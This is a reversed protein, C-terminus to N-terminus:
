QFYVGVFQNPYSSSGSVGIQNLGRSNLSVSVDLAFLGPVFGPLAYILQSQIQSAPEFTLISGAPVISSSGAVVGDMEPPSTLGVGTLFLTVTTGFAAPNNPGNLTGDSNRANALGTGSGDATLLGPATAVVSENLINSLAGNVSVQINTSSQGAIEVPAICVVRGFDVTILFAPRGDFLVQVGELNTTMPTLVNLGIDAFKVPVFRPLSLSVIEGPAVPGPQLSFANSVRALNLGPVVSPQVFIALYADTAMLPFPNTFGRIQPTQAGMGVDGALVISGGLGAAVSPTAGALLYTSFALASGTANLVSVFSSFQGVAPAPEVGYVVPFDGSDTEGVIYSNGASDVALGTPHDYCSGGLLTSFLATKGDASLKMVFVDDVFYESIVGISGTDDEFAPYACASALTMQYAGSTVPFDTADTYGAIIADGASDTAAAIGSQQAGENEILHAGPATAAQSGGISTSYIVQGNPDLKMVFAQLLAGGAVHYAGPTIPFDPDNTSGTLTINGSSDIAIGKGGSDFAGDVPTFYRLDLRGAFAGPAGPNLAAPPGATFPFDPSSWSGIVWPNGQPSVAIGFISDQKSGGLYTSSALKGDNTFKAVFGNTQGKLSTQFAGATVPLDVSSTSGAIWINGAGDLAISQGVENGMGGFYTLFAVTKGDPLFKALFADSSIPAIGYVTNTASPAFVAEILRSANIATWTQGGDTSRYPGAILIQPNSPDISLPGAASSPVASSNWTVGGDTSKWLAAGVLAYLVGSVKPDTVVCCTNFPANVQTWTKGGDVSKQFEIQNVVFAPGYIIGPTVPDFSFTLGGGSVSTGAPWPLSSRTWSAAGDESVYGGIGAWAYLVNSHFPDLTVSDISENTPLGQSASAWTQGGDVSKYVCGIVTASAYLTSPLEPDIVLSSVGTQGSSFPLSACQFHAGGDTSKCVSNGSGVYLTQSSTPDVAIVLPQLPTASPFPTALPKWTVGADQSVIVQTGSNNTQVANVIPLDFSTTTGVVYINGASDVALGNASDDGSGGFSFSKLPSQAFSFVVAFVALLSIRLFM